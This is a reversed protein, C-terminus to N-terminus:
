GGSKGKGSSGSGGSGSSGKGSSGSSGGGGGSGSSGGGGSGGGGGPGSNGGGDDSGSRNTGRGSGAGPYQPRVRPVARPALERRGHENWRWETAARVNMRGFTDLTGDVVVRRGSASTRQDLVIPAPGVLRTPQGATQQEVFGEISLRRLRGSFPVEPDVSLRRAVFRGGEISGRVRVGRGEVVAGTESTGATEIRLGGVAFEGPRVQTASGSVLARPEGDRSGRDIRSAVIVGDEARVGSIEVRDGVTLKGLRMTEDSGGAIVTEREIRGQQGLVEIMGEGADIRAIPGLVAPLLDVTRATLRGDVRAAEIAVVHGVRLSGAAAPEGDWTVTTDHAIEVEYGNVLISGFGTITGVIGTGGIGSDAVPGGTGGIGGADASDERSSDCSTMWLLGALAATLVTRSRGEWL